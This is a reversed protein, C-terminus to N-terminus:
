VGAEVLSRPIEKLICVVQWIEGGVCAGRNKM